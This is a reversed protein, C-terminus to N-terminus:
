EDDIFKLKTAKTPCSQIVMEGIYQGQSINLPYHGGAQGLLLRLPRDDGALLLPNILFVGRILLWPHLQIFGCTNKELEFHWGLQVPEINWKHSVQVVKASKLLITGKDSVEPKFHVHKNDLPTKSVKIM